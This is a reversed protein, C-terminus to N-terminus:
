EVNEKEKQKMAWQNFEQESAENDGSDIEKQFLRNNVFDITLLGDKM